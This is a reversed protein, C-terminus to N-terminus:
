EKKDLLNNRKEDVQSTFIAEFIYAKICPFLIIEM